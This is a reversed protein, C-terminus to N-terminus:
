PGDETVQLDEVILLAYATVQRIEDHVTEVLTQELTALAATKGGL